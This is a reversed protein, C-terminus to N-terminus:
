ERIQKGCAHIVYRVHSECVNPSYLCNMIINILVTVNSARTAGLALVQRGKGSTSSYLFCAAGVQM